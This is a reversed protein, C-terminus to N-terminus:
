FAETTQLIEQLPRTIGQQHLFRLAEARAPADNYTTAVSRLHRIPCSDIIGINWGERRALESWHVDLGWGWRLSPFPLLREFTDKHFGTLPGCEVFHTRRAVTNWWRRTIEFSTYSRFCHAPMFIKLDAERCLYLSEDLLGEPVAIDDDTVIIWDFRSCNVGSLAANVNDFKGCDGMQITSVTVNHRARSLERIVGHIDAERGPVEIGVILIDQVPSSGVKRAMERKSRTRRLRFDFIPDTLWGLRRTRWSLRRAGGYPDVFFNTEADM